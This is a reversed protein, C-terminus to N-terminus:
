QEGRFVDYEKVRNKPERYLDPRLDEPAIGSAEAVGIVYRSPIKKYYRWMSVNAASTGCWAALVRDPKCRNLARHTALEIVVATDQTMAFEGPANGSKMIKSEHEM